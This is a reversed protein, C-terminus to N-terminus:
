WRKKARFWQNAAPTFLLLLAYAVLTLQTLLFLGRGVRGYQLNIAIVRVSSSAANVLTLALLAYRAWSKGLYISRLLWYTVAIALVAVASLSVQSPTDLGSVYGVGGRVLFAAVGSLYAVLLIILSRIVAAPIGPSPPVGDVVDGVAGQPTDAPRQTM